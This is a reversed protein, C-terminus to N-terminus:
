RNQDANKWWLYTAVMGAVSTLFVIWYSLPSLSNDGQAYLISVAWPFYEAWGVVIILNALILTLVAMAMPLMNTMQVLTEPVTPKSAAQMARDLDALWDELLGLFLAQKSAFHYYFAGKSVGAAACVEDVSAAEYGDASFRRIAAQMIRQRTEASRPLPM